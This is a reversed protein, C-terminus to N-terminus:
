AAVEPEGWEAKLKERQAELQGRRQRVNAELMVRAMGTTAEVMLWGFGAAAWALGLVAPDSLVTLAGTSGGGLRIVTYLPSLSAAVCPFLISRGLLRNESTDLMMALLGPLLLIIAVVVLGVSYAAGIGLSVGILVGKMNRM